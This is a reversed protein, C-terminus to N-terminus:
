KEEVKIVIANIEKGSELLVQHPVGAPIFIVDGPTLKYRTGGEVRTGRTEGPTTPKADISKGGVLIEAQGSRVVFFDSFKEHIESLGSGERHLVIANYTPKTIVTVLAGKTADMKKALDKDMNKMESSSWFIAGSSDAAWASSLSLAAAAAIALLRLTM